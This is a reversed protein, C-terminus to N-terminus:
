NSPSNCRLDQIAYVDPYRSFLPEAKTWADQARGAQVQNMADAYVSRDTPAVDKLAAL